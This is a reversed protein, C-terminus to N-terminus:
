ANFKTYLLFVYYKLLLRCQFPQQIKPRKNNKVLFRKLSEGEKGASDQPNMLMNMQWLNKMWQLNLLMSIETHTRFGFSTM